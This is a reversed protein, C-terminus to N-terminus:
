HNDKRILPFIRDLELGAKNYDQLADTM